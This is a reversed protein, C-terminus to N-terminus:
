MPSLGLNKGPLPLANIADEPQPVTYRPLNHLSYAEYFMWERKNAKSKKM